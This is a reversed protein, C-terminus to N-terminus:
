QYFNYALPTGEEQRGVYRSGVVVVVMTMM